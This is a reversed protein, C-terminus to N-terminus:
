AAGGLESLERQADRVLAPQDAKLPARVLETWIHKGALEETPAGKGHAAALKRRWFARIADQSEQSSGRAALREVEEEIDAVTLRSFKARYIYDQSEAIGCSPGESTVRQREELGAKSEGSRVPWSTQAAQVIPAVHAHAVRLFGSAAGKRTRDLLALMARDNVELRDDM